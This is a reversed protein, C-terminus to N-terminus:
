GSDGGKDNTELLYSGGSAIMWCVAISGSPWSAGEQLVVAAVAAWTATALLLGHNMFPKSQGWWGIWLLVTTLGAAVGIAKGWPGDLNNGVGSETLMSVFIVACALSVALAYPRVQRGLFRWPLTRGDGTTTM